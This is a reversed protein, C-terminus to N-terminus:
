ASVPQQDPETTNVPEVGESPQAQADGSPSAPADPESDSAPESPPEQVQAPAQQKENLGEEARLTGMMANNLEPTVSTEYASPFSEIAAVAHAKSEFLRLLAANTFEVGFICHQEIAEKYRQAALNINKVASKQFDNLETSM